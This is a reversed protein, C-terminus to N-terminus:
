LNEGTVMSMNSCSCFTPYGAVYHWREDQCIGCLQYMIAKLATLLQENCGSLFPLLLEIEKVFVIAFDKDHVKISSLNSILDAIKITKSENWIGIMRERELRKRQARNYKPYNEKTFIDTLQNIMFAARAGFKHLIVDFSYLSNQPYVDELCDHGLAAVIMDADDTVSAVINAVEETHHWYPEHTYKRRHIISDHAARFFEIAQQINPSKYNGM